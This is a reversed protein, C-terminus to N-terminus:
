TRWAICVSDGDFEIERVDDVEPPGYRFDYRKEAWDTLRQLAQEPNDARINVVMLEEDLSRYGVAYLKM